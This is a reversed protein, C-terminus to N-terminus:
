RTSEQKEKRREWQGMGQEETQRKLETKREGREWEHIHGYGHIKERHEYVYFDIKM